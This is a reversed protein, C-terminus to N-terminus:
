SGSRRALFKLMTRGILIDDTNLLEQSNTVTKGRVRLIYRALGAQGGAEPHRALYFRGEKGFLIAHCPAIAADPIFIEIDPRYKTLGLDQSRSGITYSDGQQLEWEKKSHGFKMQARPDGSSIFQLLGDRLLIPTFTVGFCIGIGVVIFGVAQSLDPVPTGVVAFITGGILGGFLGGVYAHAARMRNVHIWRLGLGLGIFSGAVMWSILRAAIPSPTSLRNTIPIDVLGAIAGAFLGILTGSIIWRPMVRNGSYRDSFAVTLGGILAGLVTTAIVDSVWMGSQSTLPAELLRVIGWSLLGSTGGVLSM